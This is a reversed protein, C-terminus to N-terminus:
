PVRLLRFGVGDDRLSPREYRRYATRCDAAGNIWCGGRLVHYSDAKPGLPNEKPSKKYYDGDYWDYCWELVNGAIDLCGYPSEGKPFIGVPSTRGLGCEKTNCKNKDFEKGWPYERGDTGRAAKEWEAETPLRYTKGTKKSLWNTYAVAEYWSVGVVPFNPRNWKGEHWFRPESINEKEKWEWGETTWNEKNTYGGEDIFAKFEENTVPYKGMMFEDLYVRHIPKEDKDGKNSGMIFEGAEVKVMPYEKIRPDGLIGLNEGAEVRKDLPADAYIIELFKEKVLAALDTDRKYSQIARHTSAGLLGKGEKDLIYFEELKKEIKVDGPNVKQIEKLIRATENVYKLWDVERNKEELYKLKELLIVLYENKTKRQNLDYSKKYFDVAKDLYKMDENKLKDYCKASFLLAEFHYPYKKLIDDYHQVAQKYEKKRFFYRANSLHFEIDEDIKELLKEIEADSISATIWEKFFEVYFDYRNKKYDKVFKFSKLKDLTQSLNDVVPTLNSADAKGRISDMTIPRNEKRLAAMLYLIIRDNVSLSDWIWYVGSSYNKVASIVNHRVIDRTICGTNNQEAADFSVSALCQTLYPHGSTLSYIEDMAEADFPISSESSKLLQRSEEKSFYALEEQPGFKMIQGFRKPELDKYNRGVAFILKVPYKKAQIEEILTATFPIFRKSAFTDVTSDDEVDEIEGLVDFEDFLLLLQKKNLLREMVQPIFNKRFYFSANDDEFDGAKIAIKLDLDSVIRSAIEYLLKQLQTSAKDQLNFYVPFANEILEPADQLKRLLSTKGIRRQGFILFNNEKKKRLFSIISAIIKGRGFFDDGRAPSGTNFPNKSLM